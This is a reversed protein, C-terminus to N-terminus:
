PVAAKSVSIPKEIDDRPEGVQMLTLAQGQATLSAGAGKIRTCSRPMTPMRRGIARM